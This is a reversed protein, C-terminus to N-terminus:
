LNAQADQVAMGFTVWDPDTLPYKSDSANVPGVHIEKLHLLQEPSLRKSEQKSIPYIEKSPVKQVEAHPILRERLKSAFHQCVDHSNFPIATVSKLEEAVAEDFASPLSQQAKGAIWEELSVQDRTWDKEDHCYAFRACLSRHFNKFEAEWNRQNSDGTKIMGPPQQSLHEPLEKLGKLGLLLHPWTLVADTNIIGYAVLVDIIAAAITAEQDTTIPNLNTMQSGKEAFATNNFFLCAPHAKQQTPGLLFGASAPKTKSADAGSCVIVFATTCSTSTAFPQDAAPTGSMALWPGPANRMPIFSLMRGIALAM